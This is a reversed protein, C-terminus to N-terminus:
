LKNRVSRERLAVHLRAVTVQSVRIPSLVRVWSPREDTLLKYLEHGELETLCLKVPFKLDDTMIVRKERGASPVGM